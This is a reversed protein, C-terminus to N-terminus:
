PEEQRLLASSSAQMDATPWLALSTGINKLYTPFLFLFLYGISTSPMYLCQALYMGDHRGLWVGSGRGLGSGVISALWGRGAPQKFTLTTLRTKEDHTFNISGAAM